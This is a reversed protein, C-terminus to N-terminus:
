LPRSQGPVVLRSRSRELAEQERVTAVCAACAPREFLAAVVQGEVATPVLRGQTVMAPVVETITGGDARETLAIARGCVCCHVHDEM